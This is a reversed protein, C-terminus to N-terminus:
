PLNLYTYWIVHWPITSIKPPPHDLVDLFRAFPPFRPPFYSPNGFQRRCSRTTSYINETTPTNTALVKPGTRWVMWWKCSLSRWTMKKWRYFLDGKADHFARSWLLPVIQWIDPCIARIGLCNPHIGKSLWWNPTVEAPSTTIIQRERIPWNYGFKSKRGAIQHLCHKM